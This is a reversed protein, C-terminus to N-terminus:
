ADLWPLYLELSSERIRFVDSREGRLVKRVLGRSQGTQRVIAKITTGSNALGIIIANAEERRLYGQCQIQEATTLLARTQM